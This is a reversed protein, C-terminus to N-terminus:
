LFLHFTSCFMFRTVPLGELWAMIENLRTQFGNVTWQFNALEICINFHFHIHSWPYFYLIDTNSRNKKMPLSVYSNLVNAPPNHSCLQPAMPPNPQLAPNLPRAPPNTRNQVMPTINLELTSGATHADSLSREIALQMLDDDSLNSYLSYDDFGLSLGPAGPMSVSAAAMISRFHHLQSPLRYTLLYTECELRTCKSCQQM